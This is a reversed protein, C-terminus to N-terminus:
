ASRVVRAGCNSCFSAGNDKLMVTTWGCESCECACLEEGEVLLRMRCTREARYYECDTIDDLDCGGACIEEHICPKLKEM